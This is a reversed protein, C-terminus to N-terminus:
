RWNFLRYQLFLPSDLKTSHNHSFSSTKLFDSIRNQLRCLSTEDVTIVKANARTKCSKYKKLASKRVGVCKSTFRSYLEDIVIKMSIATFNM